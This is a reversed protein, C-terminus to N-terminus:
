KGLKREVFAGQKSVTMTGFFDITFVQTTRAFKRGSSASEGVLRYRNPIEWTYGGLKYPPPLYVLRNVAPHDTEYSNNGDVQVYEKYPAHWLKMV